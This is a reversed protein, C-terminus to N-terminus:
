VYGFTLGGQSCTFAANYNRSILDSDNFLLFRWDPDDDFILQYDVKALFKRSVLQWGCGGTVEQSVKSGFLRTFVYCQEVNMLLYSYTCSVLGARWACGFWVKCTTSCWVRCTAASSCCYKRATPMSAHVGDAYWCWSRQGASGTGAEQKSKCPCSIRRQPTQTKMTQSGFLVSTLVAPRYWSM